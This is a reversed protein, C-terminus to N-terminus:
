VCGSAERIMGSIMYQFGSLVFGLSVIIGTPLMRVGFGASLILRVITGYVLWEGLIFLAFALPSAEVTCMANDLCHGSGWWTHPKTYMQFYLGPIIGMADVGWTWRECNGWGRTFAMLSTASSSFVALLFIFTWPDRFLPCAHMHSYMDAGDGLGGESMVNLVMNLGTFSLCLLLFDRMACVVSM